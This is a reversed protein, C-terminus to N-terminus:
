RDSLVLSSAPKVSTKARHGRQAIRKAMFHMVAKRTDAVVADVSQTADIVIGDKMDKVLDRYAARQRATEEIPVERKRQWIVDAPADLLITLDPQPICKRVLRALWMPGGYRYRRPDVLIDDYYRDFYFVTARTKAIMVNGFWGGWYRCLWLGLKAVSAVTSWPPLGQPDTSPPRNHDELPVPFLYCRASRAFVPQLDQMARTIVSTKGSGDPGLFVVHLGAPRSIRDWIRRWEEMRTELSTTRAKTYMTKRLQTLNSQVWSWDNRAACPAIKNAMNVGLYNRLKAMIAGPATPWLSALHNGKRDPLKDVKGLLYLVFETEASPVSFERENGDKDRAKGRGAVIERASMLHIGHPRYDGCLDLKIFQGTGAEGDLWLVYSHAATEHWVHQVIRMGGNACYAAVIQHFGSKSHESDLVLDVDGTVNDPYNDHPGIFCYAIGRADLFEAFRSYAEGATLAHPKEAEM